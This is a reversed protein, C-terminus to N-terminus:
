LMLDTDVDSVYYTMSRNADSVPSAGIYNNYTSISSDKDSLAVIPSSPSYM